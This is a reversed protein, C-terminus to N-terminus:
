RAREAVYTKLKSIYLERHFRIGIVPVTQYAMLEDGDFKCHREKAKSWVLKKVETVTGRM